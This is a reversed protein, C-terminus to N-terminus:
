SRETTSVGLSVTPYSARVDQTTGLLAGHRGWGRRRGEVRRAGGDRSHNASVNSAGVGRAPAPSAPWGPPGDVSTKAGVPEPLVSAAKRAAISRRINAARAPPLGLAAADEVDRRELRERDVDLAVQARREGADRADGAPAALRDVERPRSGCRRCGRRALARPHRARGGSMRIVVGSDSKRRRVERARACGRTPRSPSRRRSGRGRRCSARPAGRARARAAPPPRAAAAGASRGRPSAAAARPPPGSDEAAALAQPGPLRPRHRDHVGARPLGEVQPDLHRDLVHGAEPLGDLRGGSSTGSPGALTGRRREIQGAIWGRRRSSTRACREVIRKTFLRRRASRRAAASLSSAPSSTARAWWPEIARSCRRTISSASLAPRRGASTAVEDSSSPISM